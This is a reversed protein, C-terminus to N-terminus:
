VMAGEGARYWGQVGCSPLDPDVREKLEAFGEEKRTPPPAEQVGLGSPPEKYHIPVEVKM